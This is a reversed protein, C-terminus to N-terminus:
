KEEIMNGGVVKAEGALADNFATFSAQLPELHIIHIHYKCVTGVIVGREFLLNTTEAPQDVMAKGVVPSGRFPRSLHKFFSALNRVPQM